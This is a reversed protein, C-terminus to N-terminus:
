AKADLGYSPPPAPPAEPEKDLLGFPEDLAKYLV